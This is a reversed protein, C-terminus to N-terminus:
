YVLPVSSATAVDAPIGFRESLENAELPPSLLYGQGLDCGLRRLEALQVTREIGEALSAIGLTQAVEIITRALSEQGPGEGLEDVFEKDIKIMDVPFRQLHNLSCTGTGFDDVAISVGLHRLERLTALDDDIAAALDREAVELTVLDAPLEHIALAATVQDVFGVAGLPAAAVNISVTRRGHLQWRKAQRLGEDLVFRGLPVILGSREAVPLFESPAIEGHIPHLWRVLAEAGVVDGTRLDIVPQFVLRLHGEDLAAGLDSRYELHRTAMLRMAPDFIKIRGKGARKAEYMALDADRLLMSTTMDATAVAVGVSALVPMSQGAVPIPERLADLLGEAVDLAREVGGRDELLVAFEDGGLRAPTDGSGAVSRIREAVLEQADNVTKFDDLDVFLVVVPDTEQRSVKIAHDMRDLFLARNALGTLEDHFARHSLQRQLARQETVDRLTVVLGDVSEGGLLNVAVVEVQRRHGDVTVLSAEFEITHGPGRAVLTSIEHDVYGSEQASVLDAFPRGVWDQQRHGLTRLLGPSAYHLKGREDLLVVIDSAHEVIAALRDQGRRETLARVTSVLRWLRALAIVVVVVACVAAISRTLRSGLDALELALLVTLPTLAAVSLGVVQAVSSRVPEHERATPRRPQRAMSRDLAAVGVLVPPLIGLAAVPSGPTFEDRITAITRGGAAVLMAGIGAALLNPSASRFTLEAATRLAIAFVAGLLLLVATSFAGEGIPLNDNVIFPEVVALWVGLCVAIGVVALEFWGIDEGARTSDIAVIGVGITLLLLAIVILVDAISPFEATGGVHLGHWVATAVFQAFLAGGVLGWGLRRRPANRV